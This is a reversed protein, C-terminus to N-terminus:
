GNIHNPLSPAPSKVPLSFYFSAGEDVKGEAWVEGGHREIIRKILTLGIGTGEFDSAGHLRQFAGFLKDYHKMDFGAGNDKVCITIKKSDEIYSVEIHPREKKSSYKVGNSLLNVVVQQLMSSDAYVQPLEKIEITAKHPTEFLLNDWVKTFLMKTNVMEMNLKDKGNKALVLLDNVIANMRKSSNEIYNFLEKLDPSFKNSHEKNIIKTFGMLSRIPSHLDHSVSYSFAELAINADTLERTREIVRSELNENLSRIDAEAKKRETIDRYNVVLAKINEEQLLNTLTGEIWIYHGQKNLIRYQNQLPAGPNAYGQQLFKVCSQADDSHIFEFATKGKVDDLTFGTIREASPSQYVVNLNENMLVIADSINEILARYYKESQMLKYEAEKREDINRAVSQIVEQGNLVIRDLLIDAYFLKGNDLRKHLWEFNNTGKELALKIQQNALIHSQIGSPQVPPSFDSPHKTYFEEKTACGFLKLAAQNCDFFGTETLLTVADSTSEYLTRFREESQKLREEVQKRETIDTVMALAGTYKGNKSYLPNTSLNTWIKKGSKTIYPFEYGRGLDIGQKQREINEAGLTKGEDDMFEFLPKGIMEAETYGFMECMVKNAFTTLNNEDIVWIGEQATEVIQRYREESRKLKEEAQKRETINSIAICMGIVKEKDMIPKGNITFWMMTGDTNPYGAEHTIAKGAMVATAFINFDEIRDPLLLEKLNTDSKLTAGFITAALNSSIYNYALVKFETNLFVFGVDTNDFIARLDAISNQLSLHEARKVEQREAEDLARVIKPVLSTPKDRFVYDTVGSKILELAEDGAATGSVLIFPIAPAVQQTHKFASKWDFIPITYDTLIVDPRNERLADQFEKETQVIQTTYNKYSRGLEKELANINITDHELILIKTKKNM